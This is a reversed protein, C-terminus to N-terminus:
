CLLDHRKGWVQGPDKVKVPVPINHYQPPSPEPVPVYHKQHVYKPVEFCTMLLNLSLM